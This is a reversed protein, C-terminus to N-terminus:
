DLGYEKFIDSRNKNKQFEEALKRREELSMEAKPPVIEMFKDLFDKDACNM